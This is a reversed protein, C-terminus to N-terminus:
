RGRLRIEYQYHEGVLRSDCVGFFRTHVYSIRKSCLIPAGIPIHLMQADVFSAIDASLTEVADTQMVGYKKEIFGYLSVFTNNYQEFDPVFDAVIYNKIYAIPHGDAMIIREVLYMDVPDQLDASYMIAEPSVIKQINMGGVTVTYGKSRLTETISTIKSLRQATSNNLVKTGRGQKVQLYGDDVLLSVAKRITTRSVSYNRCLENETPFFSGTPYKGDRIEQKLTNYIDVYLPNSSLEMCEGTNDKRCKPM